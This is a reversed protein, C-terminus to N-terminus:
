SRLNLFHILSAWSEIGATVNGISRNSVGTINVYNLFFELSQM